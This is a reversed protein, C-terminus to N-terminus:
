NTTLQELDSFVKATAANIRDEILKPKAISLKALDHKQLKKLLAIKGDNAQNLKDNLDTMAQQQLEADAQMAEITKQNSEAVLKLKENNAQALVLKDQLHKSYWVLSFIVGLIGAILYIRIM